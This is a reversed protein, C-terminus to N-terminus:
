LSIGLNKEMTLFPIWFEGILSLRSKKQRKTYIIVYICYELNILCFQIFQRTQAVLQARFDGVGSNRDVGLPDCELRHPPPWYRTESVGHVAAYCCVQRSKALIRLILWKKFM